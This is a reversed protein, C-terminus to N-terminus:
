PPWLGLETWQLDETACILFSLGLSLLPSSPAGCALVHGTPVSFPM